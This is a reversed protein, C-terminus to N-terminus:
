EECFLNGRERLEQGHSQSSSSNYLTYLPSFTYARWSIDESTVVLNLTLNIEDDYRASQHAHLNAVFTEWAAM